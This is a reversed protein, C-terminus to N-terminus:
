VLGVANPVGLPNSTTGNTNGLAVNIQHVVNCIHSNIVNVSSLNLKANPNASAHVQIGVTLLCGTTTHHNNTTDPTTKTQELPIISFGTPLLPICSPDEGSMVLQIYDVEMTAYVVLSGSPDTCSEQLMLEVNQSSNSAVQM